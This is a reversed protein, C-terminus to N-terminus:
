LLLLLLLLLQFGAYTPTSNNYPRQQTCRYSSQQL